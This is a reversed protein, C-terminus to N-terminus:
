ALSKGRDLPYARRPRAARLRTGCTPAANWRANQRLFDLNTTPVLNWHTKHRLFDLNTTPISGVDPM